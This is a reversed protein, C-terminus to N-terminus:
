IAEIAPIFDKLFVWHANKAADKSKWGRMTGNPFWDLAGDEGVFTADHAIVVLVNDAADFVQMRALTYEGAPRDPAASDAIEYFAQSRTHRPHIAEFIHGPCIAPFKKPWPSPQLEDPLPLHESPRFEGGHHAADGGMFVFTDEADGDQSSTVRALGCIHGIAHGPSDLLYFSGDGFYDIARFGGIVLHSDKEFNMERHQRGAFDSSLLPSEPNEPYAPLFADRVGSGTILVTGAPFTSVDGTHDFHWHSWIVAEIAGAKVDIGSDQLIEAVNQKVDMKWDPGSILDQIVPPHSQWDKRLGLDFLVKRNSNQQTIMFSYAPVYIHTHGQIPPCMFASAPAQVRTTTDIIQVTASKGNPITLQNSMTYAKPVKPAISYDTILYASIYRANLDLAGRFIKQHITSISTARVCDTTYALVLQACCIYGTSHM